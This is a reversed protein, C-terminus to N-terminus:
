YLQTTPTREYVEQLNASFRNQLVGGPSQKQLRKHRVDAPVDSRWNGPLIEHSTDESDTLSQPIYIKGSSSESRLWNHLILASLTFIKVKPELAFPRRFVRWCNALTGFANESIRRSRSSRYNFVIKEMTLNSQPFPKMLTNTLPFADEVVLVYPMDINRGRLPTAKRLDLSNEELAKKM